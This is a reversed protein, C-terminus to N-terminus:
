VKIATAEGDRSNAGTAGFHNTPIGIGNMITTLLMNHPMYGSNGDGVKVFQGQKLYGGLGGAIVVPLDRYDHNKGDSLENIWMACTNDLVTGSGESYMNLRDYLYAFQKAHWTDIELLQTEADYGVPLSASGNDSARHSLPHHNYAMNSDIWKYVPGGSGRGFLISGSVTYNCALALAMIDMQMQGITEFNVDDSVTGSGDWGQIQSTRTADFLCQQAGMTMGADAMSTELQRIVTLHMDLKQKDNASLKAMKLNDFDGAVLDIVSKRKLAVDIMQPGGGGMTMFNRFAYWPNNEGRVPQGAGTYSIVGLMDTYQNGVALTLASRGPPNLGGAIAQDISMGSCYNDATDQLPAATLKHGMGKKHDCGIGTYGPPSMEWGRPILLKSTRGQLPALATGALAGDTLAGTSTLTPFFTDMKVGNVEFFAVFRKPANVTQAWAKRPALGELFPLGMAIGGLGQLFYRRNLLKV